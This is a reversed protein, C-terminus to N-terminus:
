IENDGFIDALLANDEEAQEPDYGLYGNKLQRVEDAPQHRHSNHKRNGECYPCGGHCRCSRDFAKSKSYDKRYTKGMETAEDWTLAQGVKTQITRHM